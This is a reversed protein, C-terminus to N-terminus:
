FNCVLQMAKLLICESCLFLNHRLFFNFHYDGALNLFNSFFVAFLQLDQVVTDGLEFARKVVKSFAKSGAERVEATSFPFNCHIVKALRRQMNVKYKVRVLGDIAFAQKLV